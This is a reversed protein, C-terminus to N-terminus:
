LGNLDKRLTDMKLRALYTKKIKGDQGIVVTFPLGGAQNGFERALKTGNMGASYLPYSIKQKAAFQAINSPSDIGIGLIQVKSSAVEQQLASLEPMEDVCPPCWTAWFNVVLTQDKWQAMPQPRGNADAFTQSFFLGAAGTAAEAPLTHRNGVAIGIGTFVLAVAAFLITKKKM